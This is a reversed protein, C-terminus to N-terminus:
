WLVRVRASAVPPLQNINSDTMYWRREIRKFLVVQSMAAQARTRKPAALGRNFRVAALAAPRPAALEQPRRAGLRLRQTRAAQILAIITM